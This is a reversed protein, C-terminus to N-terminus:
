TEETIVAIDQFDFDIWTEAPFIAPLTKATLDSGNLNSRISVKINGSDQGGGRLRVRTLTNLTPKFSQAIMEPYECTSNSNMNSQQQDVEESFINNSSITNILCSGIFLFVVAYFWVNKLSCNLM